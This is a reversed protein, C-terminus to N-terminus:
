AVPVLFDPAAANSEGTSAYMSAGFWFGGAVVHRVRYEIDDNLLSGELSPVAGGGLYLGTNGSQRFEPKEHGRLFNVVISDRTGDNGGLPVLYWTTAANASKDIQTLYDNVVLTVDSSGVSTTYKKTGETVEVSGLALIREATTQLNTPVVLAFKNVTVYNGNVQRSRVERKAFELANLSLKYRTGGTGTTGMANGNGSNFTAANPGTVSTLVELAATEETTKALKAMEGPLSAIFGWEDNIVDEWLFPIRAGTKRLALGKESTSWRFPPYETGEPINPLSHVSTNYGGNDDLDVAGNFLFEKKRKPKFDEFVDRKAFQTWTTPLGAYQKLLEASNAYAFTRALDSTSIAENLVYGESVIQKIRGRARFDGKLADGFVKAAEQIQKSIEM